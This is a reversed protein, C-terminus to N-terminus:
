GWEGKSEGREGFRVEAGRVNLVGCLVLVATCLEIKREIDRFHLIKFNWLIHMHSTFLNIGCKKWIMLNEINSSHTSLFRLITRITVSIGLQCRSFLFIQTVWRELNRPSSTSTAYSRHISGRTTKSRASTSSTRIRQNPWRSTLTTPFCKEGAEM